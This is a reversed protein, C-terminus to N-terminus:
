VHYSSHKVHFANIYYDEKKRMLQKENETKDQFGLCHLLAHILLRIFENEATQNNDLANEKAQHISIFVQATILNDNSYDFTIVDTHTDHSLYTNNIQLMTDADVFSVHYKVMEADHDQAMSHLMESIAPRNLTEPLNDFTFIVICLYFLPM